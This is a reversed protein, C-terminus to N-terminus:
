DHEAYVRDDVVQQIYQAHETAVAVTASEVSQAALTEALEEFSSRLVELDEKVAKWIVM